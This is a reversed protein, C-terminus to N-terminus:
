FEIRVGLQINRPNYTSVAFGFTGSSLDSDVGQLNVRNFLNFFEFRLQLNFRESLRNNKIFGADVNAYGPGRFRNRKEDGESGPAPIPFASAPFLGQLFQGRDYGSTRVGSPMNPFDYNYGDANFDGSGPALGTVKGNADTVPQFPASTFVTFPYGGQLIVTSGLEWGGLIWRVVGPSSSLRPLHFIGSFSFRNRVDWNADAKYRPILHQDPFNIGYDTTHSLTYSAQFDAWGGARRRLTVIMAHYNITNWGFNYFMRGFSHNLRDLTGDLYDGAFRNM